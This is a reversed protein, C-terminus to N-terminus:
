NKGTAGQEDDKFFRMSPRFAIAPGQESTSSESPGDSQELGAKTWTEAVIKWKYYEDQKLYLTKKGSDKITNSTYEQTFNMVAYHDTRFISVDKLDIQPKGPNSFVAKKYASFQPFNGRYTDKFENPHYYSLYKQADEERWASLWENLVSNLANYETQWTAQSLYNLNHVVIIPTRNLEIYQSLVKLDKNAAVVCGRSDLGKEIRTEDNTSHLWIGGGTKESSKDIPNPFDMVFAGVGYIEGEKGYRALLQERPIFQTLFYFGEPTRFDGQFVKNGPQKGTAIQFTSILKPRGNDNEYLFLQHSNKEAVFVHHTYKQDMQILVSPLFAETAHGPSFYLGSVQQFLLTFFISLAKM